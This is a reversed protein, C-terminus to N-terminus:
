QGDVLAHSPGERVLRMPTRARSREAIAPLRILGHTSRGRLEAEILIDTVVAADEDSLGRRSLVQQSLDRLEEVPVIM